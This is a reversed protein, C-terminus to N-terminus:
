WTIERERKIEETSGKRGCLTYFMAGKKQGPYPRLGVDRIRAMDPVDEQCTVPHDVGAEEIAITAEALPVIVGGDWIGERHPNQSILSVAERRVTPDRCKLATYYLPPIVGMDLSFTPKTSMAKAHPGQSLATRSFTVITRFDSLFRNFIHESDCLTVSHMIFITTYQTRLIVTNRVEEPSLLGCTSELFAKFAVSWHNLRKGIKAKESLASFSSPQKGVVVNLRLFRFVANMISDLRNRAEPLSSFCPFVDVPFDPEEYDTELLLRSGASGLFTAQTDLRAFLEALDDEMSRPKKPAIFMHGKHRPNPDAPRTKAQWNSFITLGNQLHTMAAEYRGQLLELCIFLICSMLTIEMSQDGESSLRNLLHNVAKNYQQLAYRRCADADGKSASGSGDLQFAEFLSSLAIMGHRISPESHGVQLVQSNWFRTDFYGSLQIATRSRFLHFGRQEQEDGFFGFPPSYSITPELSESVYRPQNVTIVTKDNNYRSQDGLYGDCRRGTEVCRLCEPKREDCKM